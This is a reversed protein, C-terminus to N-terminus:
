YFLFDIDEFKKPKDIIVNNKDLYFIAPTSYVAYADPVAETADNCMCHNIWTIPFKNSIDKWDKEEFDLSYTVIKINEPLDKNNAILKDIFEECHPCWSTWFILLKYESKIDYLNINKRINFNPAQKGIQINLLATINNYKNQLITNKLCNDNKYVSTKEAIYESIEDFEFYRFKDVLYDAVNISLSPNDKFTNFIVDIAPKFANEQQEKTYNKKQYTNIYSIILDGLFVTNKLDNSYSVNTDLFDTKNQMYLQLIKSALTKPFYKNISDIYDINDQNLQNIKDIIDNYFDDQQPYYNQLQNLLTYSLNNTEYFDFFENLIKNEISKTIIVNEKKACDYTMKINENNFIFDVSMYKNKINYMGKEFGSLDFYIKNDKIKISDIYNKNNFNYKSIELYESKCNFVNGKFSYKQSFMSLSMLLIFVSLYLKSIM